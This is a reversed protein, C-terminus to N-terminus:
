REMEEGGYKWVKGLIRDMGVAKGNKINKIARRVEERGLEEEKEEENEARRKRGVIKKKIDGLLGAFYEAWGEM